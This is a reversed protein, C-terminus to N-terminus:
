FSYYIGNSLRNTSNTNVSDAEGSFRMGREVVSKLHNDLFYNALFLKGKSSLIAFQSLLKNKIPNFM